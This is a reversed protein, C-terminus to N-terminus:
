LDYAWEPFPNVVAHEGYKGAPWSLDIDFLRSMCDLMIRNSGTPFLLYEQEIFLDIMDAQKGDSRDKILKEPLWMLRREFTSTLRRIRDEIKLSGNGDKAEKIEFHYKQSDMEDRLHQRDSDFGYEDYVVALPRYKRHLAFVLKTREVLSLKDRFADLLYFRGDESLAIVMVGTETQEPQNRKRGAPSVLIYVNDGSINHQAYFKLWEIRFDRAGAAAVHIGSMMLYRLCDMLHDNVKVIQGKDDRRYLRFESLFNTLSKFVKLRGGVLAQWVENIGAERSNDAPTLDLGLDLYQQMLQTGDSQGRGRAAPDIVGPIRTGRAMVSEAHVSPEVKGQYHESYCYWTRTEPDQAAWLCATRNWGVDLAYAKRWHGPIEFDDVTFESEPVPYIAGSGLQPVGKSRADRQFPPIADWLEKKVEESLHPADDWTATCVYKGPAVENDGDLKGGPLFAMVVESVGMLPTFTLMLMGNNTMTRLLCETYVDLPPEEDLLIVDRETGQFSERRQDYSKLTCSSVGGSSHKVFITDVADAVGSSRTVREIADGPILGTGMSELPGLLKSQLIERVTKGTDGAAWATIARGFRRGVWWDPYQGTLHLTLEYLGVGETKGVRNASLFLRERYRAGAEFYGLHKVYLERRLRGTDPYYNLIKRRSQRRLREEAIQIYRIKEARADLNM